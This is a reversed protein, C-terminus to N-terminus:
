EMSSIEPPALATAASDCFTAAEVSSCNAEMSSIEEEAEENDLIASSRCCKTPFNLTYDLLRQLLLKGFCRLKVTIILLTLIEVFGKCPTLVSRVKHLPNTKPGTIWRSQESVLLEVVNAIDGPEGLRQFANMKSM